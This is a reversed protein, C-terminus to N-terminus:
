STERAYSGPECATGSYETDQFLKEAHVLVVTGPAFRSLLIWTGAQIHIGGTAPGIVHVEDGDDAKASLACEGNMVLLFLDCSVSHGARTAGSAVDSILFTRLPVFPLERGAECVRLRGRPDIFERIDVFKLM